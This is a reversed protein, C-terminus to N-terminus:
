EGGGGSRNANFGQCDEQLMKENNVAAPKEVTNGKFRRAHLHNVCTKGDLQVVVM